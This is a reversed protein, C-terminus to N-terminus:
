GKDPTSCTLDPYNLPIRLSPSISKYGEYVPTHLAGRVRMGVLVLCAWYSAITLNLFSRVLAVLQKEQPAMNTGTM